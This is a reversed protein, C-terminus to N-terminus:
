CCRVPPEVNLERHRAQPPRLLGGLRGGGGQGHIYFCPSEPGAAHPAASLPAPPPPFPRARGPVRPTEASSFAVCPAPWCGARGARRRAGCRAGAARAARRGRRGARSQAEDM